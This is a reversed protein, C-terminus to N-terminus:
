FLTTQPEIRMVRGWNWLLRSFWCSVILTFVLLMAAVPLSLVLSFSRWLGMGVSNDNRTTGLFIGNSSRIKSRGTCLSFLRKGLSIQWFCLCNNFMMVAYIMTEFSSLFQPGSNSGGSQLLSLNGVGTNQGRSNWPCYLGHPQLSNSM